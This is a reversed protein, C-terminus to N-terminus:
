LNKWIIDKWYKTSVEEEVEEWDLKSGFLLNKENRSIQELNSRLENEQEKRIWGLGEQTKLNWVFHKQNTEGNREVIM